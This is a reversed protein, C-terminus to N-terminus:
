GTRRVRAIAELEALLEARAQEGSIGQGRLSEEYALRIGEEEDPTLGAEEATLVRDEADKPLTM